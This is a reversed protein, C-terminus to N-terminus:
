IKYSELTRGLSKLIQDLFPQNPARGFTKACKINYHFDCLALNFVKKSQAYDYETVKRCFKDGNSKYECECSFEEPQTATYYKKNNMEQLQKKEEIEQEAEELYIEFHKKCFLTLPRLYDKMNKDNGWKSFKHDIVKKFDDITFRIKKGKEDKISRFEKLRSLIVKKHQDSFYKKNTKGSLYDLIEETNEEQKQNRVYKSNCANYLFQGLNSLNNITYNLINKKPLEPKSDDMIKDKLNNLNIKKMLKKIIEKTYIGSKILLKLAYRVHHARVRWNKTCLLIALKSLSIKEPITPLLHIIKISLPNLLKSQEYTITNM